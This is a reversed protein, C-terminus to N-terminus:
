PSEGDLNMADLIRRSAGAEVPIAQLAEILSARAAPDRIVRAAEGAVEEPTIMGVLEPMIKRKARMNPLALYPRRTIYRRALSLKLALGLRPVRTIWEIAGESPIRPALSFPLVVLSPVRMMALELTNTGPITLVLAADKVAARGGTAVEVGAEDLVTRHRDLVQQRVAPSVFPSIVVQLRAEPVLRRLTKSTEIWFPLVAAFVSDRSGALFAVLPRSPAEGTLEDTKLDTLVADQLPDGTVLVKHAPVGLRVLREGLTPTPVFIREYAHHVRSIHAREVFAYARARWRRALRRSFWFDGGVHLLAAPSPPTWGSLGLALRLTTRPDVIRDFIGVSAAAPAEQGSAFQCPPLCLVIDITRGDTSALRRAEAAVPIAWGAVEGPGNGVIILTTLRRTNAMARMVSEM